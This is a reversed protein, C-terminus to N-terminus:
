GGWQDRRGGGPGSGRLGGRGGRLGTVGGGPGGAGGVESKWFVSGGFGVAGEEVLDELVEVAGNVVAVVDEDGEGGEVVFGVGWRILSDGGEGGVGPGFGPFVEVAGGVFYAFGGILFSEQGGEAFGQGIGGVVEGVGFEGGGAAELAVGRLVRPRTPPGGTERRFLLKRATPESARPLFRQSTPSLAKGPWPM